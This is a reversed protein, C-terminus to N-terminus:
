RQITENTTEEVQDNTTKQNQTGKQEMEANNKLDTLVSNM